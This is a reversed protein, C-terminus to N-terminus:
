PGLIAGLRRLGFGGDLSALAAPEGPAFHEEGRAALEAPARAAAAALVLVVVSLVLRVIKWM